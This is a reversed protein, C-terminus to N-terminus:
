KDRAKMERLEWFTKPEVTYGKRSMERRVVQKGNPLVGVSAEHEIMRAEFKAKVLAREKELTTIESAIDKQLQWLEAAEGDCVWEGGVLDHRMDRVLDPTLPSKWDLPPPDRNLIREHMLRAASFIGLIVEANAEVRFTRLKGYLLV